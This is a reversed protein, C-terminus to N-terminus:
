LGAVTARTMQKVQEWTREDLSVPDPEDEADEFWALSRIVTFADTTPYKETFFGIMSKIPFHDLLEVFDFFDKKSGRNAIANLKMAVVDPLSLLTIGGISEAPELLRYAHRMLDLKVGGADMTLSNRARGIVTADVLNLEDFLAEPAFERITFFDLDVSLRHGFRLALSTGGGLAFDQIARHPALRLLLRKVPEPVVDFRLM